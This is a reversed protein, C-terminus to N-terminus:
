RPICRMNVNRRRRIQLYEITSNQRRGTIIVCAPKLTNNIYVSMVTNDTTQEATFPHSTYRPYVIFLLRNEIIILKRKSVYKHIFIYKKKQIVTQWDTKASHEGRIQELRNRQPTYFVFRTNFLIRQRRQLLIRWSHPSPPEFLRNLRSVSISIYSTQVESQVYQKSYISESSKLRDTGCPRRLRTSSDVLEVVMFDPPLSLVFTRSKWERRVVKPSILPM